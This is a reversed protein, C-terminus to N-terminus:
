EVVVLTRGHACEVYQVSRTKVDFITSIYKCDSPAALFSSKLKSSAEWRASTQGENFGQQRWSERVQPLVFQIFLLATILSALASAAIYRLM